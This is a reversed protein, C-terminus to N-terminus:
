CCVVVLCVCLLVHCGVEHIFLLNETSFEKGLHNIFAQYGEYGTEILKIWSRHQHTEFEDSLLIASTMQGPFNNHPCGDCCACCIVDRWAYMSVTQLQLKNFKVYLYKPYIGNLYIGAFLVINIIYEQFLVFITTYGGALELNIGFCILVIMLAFMGFASGILEQRIGLHDFQTHKLEVFLVIALVTTIAWCIGVWIYGFMPAQRNNIRWFLIYTVSSEVFVILIVIKICFKTNGWRHINKEFWNTAESIPDIAMRWQKNQDFNLLQSDYYFLWFQAIWLWLYIYCAPYFILSALYESVIWAGSHHQTQRWTVLPSRVIIYPLIHM